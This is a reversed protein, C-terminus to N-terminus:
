AHLNKIKIKQVSQNILFNNSPSLKPFGSYQAKITIITQKGICGSTTTHLYWSLMATASLGFRATAVGAAAVSSFSANEGAPIWNCLGVHVDVTLRYGHVNILTVTAQM